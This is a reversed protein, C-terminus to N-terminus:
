LYTGVHMSTLETEYVDVPIVSTGLEINVVTLMKSSIKKPKVYCLGEHWYQCNQTLHFVNVDKTNSKQIM